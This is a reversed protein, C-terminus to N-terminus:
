VCCYQIITYVKGSDHQIIGNHQQAGQQEGGYSLICQVGFNACVTYM